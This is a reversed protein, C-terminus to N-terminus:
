GEIIWTYKTSGDTWVSNGLMGLVSRGLEEDDTILTIGIDFAKNRNNSWNEYALTYDPQQFSFGDPLFEELDPPVRGRGQDEPWSDQDAQFNFVAVKVVNLDAVADAAKAKTIARALSPQAIAALISIVVIVTLLEVLTFGRTDTGTARRPAAGGIRAIRM